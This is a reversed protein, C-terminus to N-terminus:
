KGFLRQWFSKNEEKQAEQSAAILKKTEISERLATMIHEDRKHLQEEIYKNQREIQSVLTRNFEEMKDLKEIVQNLLVREENNAIDVPVDSHVANEEHVGETRKDDEVGSLVFKVAIDLAMKNEQMLVKLRRLLLIDKDYFVRSNNAGRLFTYGQEELALCWKRMTSGAVGLLDSIEKSWYAKETTGGENM